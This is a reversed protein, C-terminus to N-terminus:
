REPRRRLHPLQREGHRAHARRDVVRQRRPRRPQPRHRRDPRTRAPAAHRRLPGAGRRRRARRPGEDSRRRRLRAPQRAGGRLGALLLRAVGRAGRSVPRHRRGQRLRVRAGAPAPIHRPHTEVSSVPTCVGNWCPLPSRVLHCGRAPADLRADPGQYRRRGTSCGDASSHFGVASGDPSPGLRREAEYWDEEHRGDQSGNALYILYAERAIQEPSPRGEVPATAVVQSEEAGLADDPNPSETQPQPSRAATPM